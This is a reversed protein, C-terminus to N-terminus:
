DAPRPGGDLITRVTEALDRPKIPKRILPIRAASLEEASIVEDTYGSMVAVRMSPREGRLRDIVSRGSMGPMVVDSLLLDITGGHERSLKVAEEGSGAALVRYGLPRLVDTLLRRVVPDDEVVLITECGRPVPGPALDERSSAGDGVVPLYVRFCSGRGPESEVDIFGRHQKVIGYVTALGLGTGKGREKTTFFPEFIKGLLEPEMGQGTDSVEILVWPRDFDADRIGAFKGPLAAPRTAIRLEGGLPMADRANVALNLIVQELQGPDAIVERGRAGPLATLRVDEGIVRSLMKEMGLVVRDPDVRKMELVQKRSFALLQRTLSAATEAANKVVLLKEREPSEPPLRLLALESYGLIASLINNFDHAVGGALRGISEMKQSQLLRVQLEAENAEAKKRATIDRVVHVLGTLRGEADRRPLAKIELHRGLHPEYIENVSAEGTELCRCSPCGDPPCEAGHYLEFCKRSLIEEMRAGLLDRAARNARLIRFGTDHITIADNIVDFTEEWEEKARLLMRELRHEEPPESPLERRGPARDARRVTRLVAPRGQVSLWSM